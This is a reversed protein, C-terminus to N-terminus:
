TVEVDITARKMPPYRHHKAMVWAMDRIVKVHRARAAWHKEVNASLVVDRSIALHIVATM